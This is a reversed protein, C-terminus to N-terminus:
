ARWRGLREQLRDLIGRQEPSSLHRRTEALAAEAEDLRRQWMREREMGEITAQEREAKAAHLQARHRTEQGSLARRVRREAKDLRAHLRAIQDASGSPEASGALAQTGELVGLARTVEAVYQDIRREVTEEGPVAAYSELQHHVAYVAPFDEPRRPPDFSPEYYFTQAPFVTVGDPYQSLVQRLFDKGASESANRDGDASSRLCEVAREFFPHRPIAGLVQNGIHRENIRGVFASVGRLLPDLPRIPEVDMDVIVGGYQRLIELRVIDYRRKFGNVGDLIPQCSLVSLSDDNWLQTQWSPHLAKWRRAYQEFIQPVANTGLWLWHVVRPIAGGEAPPSSSM